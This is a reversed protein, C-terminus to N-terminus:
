SAALRVGRSRTYGPPVPARTELPRRRPCGRGRLFRDLRRHVRVRCESSLGSKKKKKKYILLLMTRNEHGKIWLEYTSEQTEEDQPTLNM